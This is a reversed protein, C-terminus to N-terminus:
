SGSSARDAIALVWDPWEGVRRHDVKRLAREMDRTHGPLWGPLQEGVGM